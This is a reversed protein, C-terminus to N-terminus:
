GKRFPSHSALEAIHDEMAAREHALFQRIRERWTPDAIWHASWTRAPLFGRAIKHEGQAGPEFRSLGQELCYELGQYYCAEFHLQDLHRTCGWHRGYLTREGRLCFAGAVTEGRQSALVMLVQRPLTRGIERFFGESLTAHGWKREFTATYFRQWLRWQEDDVEDGHLRVLEIGQDWVRRREQRIKKRKSASLAALYGDFDSYSEDQWHFQVGLRLDHEPHADLLATDRADTFLWHLSSVGLARAYDVAADILARAVAEAQPGDGTLLRRGSAPTYPIAAVLKPYYAQGAREWAEAWAWDFVLEGYSNDKLYLPVSGVLRGHERAVLYRPYWGFREGVAGHRELALLFEHRAFPNDAEVLANWEDSAISKLSDIVTFQM